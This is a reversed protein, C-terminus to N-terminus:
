LHGVVGGVSEELGGPCRGKVLGALQKETRMEGLRAPANSWHIVREKFAERM